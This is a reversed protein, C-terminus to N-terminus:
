SDVEQKKEYGTMDLLGKSFIEKILRLADSYEFNPFELIDGDRLDFNLCKDAETYYANVVVQCEVLGDEIQLVRM